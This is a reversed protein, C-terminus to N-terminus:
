HCTSSWVVLVVLLVVELVVYGILWAKVQNRWLVLLAFLGSMMFFLVCSMPRLFYRGGDKKSRECFERKDVWEKWDTIWLILVVTGLAFTGVASLSVLLLEDFRRDQLFCNSLDPLLSLLLDHYYCCTLFSISINEALALQLNWALQRRGDM